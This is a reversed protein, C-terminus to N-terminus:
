IRRGDGVSGDRCRGLVSLGVQTVSALAILLVLRKM